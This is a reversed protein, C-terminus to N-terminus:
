AKLYKDLTRHCHRIRIEQYHARYVEDTGSALLGEHVYPMNSMDQDIVAGLVPWMRAAELDFFAQSTYRSAALPENGFDRVSQERLLRPAPRSDRALYDLYTPVAAGPSAGGDRQDHDSM